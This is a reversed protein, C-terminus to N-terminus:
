KAMGLYLCALLRLSRLHIAFSMSVLCHYLLHQFFVNFSGDVAFGDAGCAGGYWPACIGVSCVCVVRLLGLAYPNLGLKEGVSMVANM